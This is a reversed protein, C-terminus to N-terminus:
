LIPLRSLGKADQPPPIAIVTDAPAAAPDGNPAPAQGAPDELPASSGAIIVVINLDPSRSLVLIDYFM